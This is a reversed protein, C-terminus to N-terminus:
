PILVHEGPVVTSSGLSTVLAARAFSPNAPNMMEAISSITDSPQVVYSEGAALVSSSAVDTSLGTGSTGGFASGPLCLVGVALFVAAVLFRRNRRQKAAARAARREAISPGRRYQPTENASVLRLYSGNSESVEEFAEVVQLAAM